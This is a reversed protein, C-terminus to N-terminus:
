RECVVVAVAVGADHTISLHISTVGLEDARRRVTGLVEITPQGSELRGVVCDTWVLGGPAGLAKALAEKAAFRGALTAASGDQESPTFLREVLRRRPEALRDIACVDVGLGVIM